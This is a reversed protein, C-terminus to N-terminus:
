GPFPSKEYHASDVISLHEAAIAQIAVPLGDAPDMVANKGQALNPKRKEGFLDFSRRRFVFNLLQHNREVIDIGFPKRLRNLVSGIDPLFSSSKGDTKLAFFGTAAYEQSKGVIIRLVTIDHQGNRSRFPKKSQFLNKGTVDFFV